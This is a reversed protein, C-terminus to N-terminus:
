FGKLDIPFMFDLGNTANARKEKAILATALPSFKKQASKLNEAPSTTKVPYRLQCHNNGLLQIM